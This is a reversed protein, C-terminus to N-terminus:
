KGPTTFDFEPQIEIPPYFVGIISFPNKWRRIHAKRRTGLFFYIDRKRFDELYKKKIDHLAKEKGHKICNRYLMMVEWDEIMLKYIEGSDDKFKYYFTFPISQAMEWYEPIDQNILDGQMRLNNLIEEKKSEEKQCDKPEAIFDVLEKPKFTALSIFDKRQTDSATELNKFNYFVNKLCIEKRAKWNNDPGIHEICEEPPSICYYSEKRNDKNRDRPEIDLIYWCYKQIKTDLMRLKIPYVRIWDGSETLGATCVTEIYKHSPTPYTLVTIFLKKKLHM